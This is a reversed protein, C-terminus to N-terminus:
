GTPEAEGSSVGALKRKELVAVLEACLVLICCSYFIWVVVVALSALSGYVLSFKAVWKVYLGFLRAAALWLLAFFASAIALSRRSIRSGSFFRVLIWFTLMTALITALVRLAGHRQLFESIQGAVGGEGATFMNAAIVGVLHIALLSLGAAVIFVSILLQSKWITRRKELAFVKAFAIELSRFVLGATVMLFLAGTIGYTTKRRVLEQLRQLVDQELVPIATRLYSELQQFLQQHDAPSRGLHEMLFGALSLVLMLFPILSLLAFFSIGAATVLGDDSAFARVTDRAVGLTKKLPPLVTATLRCTHTRNM